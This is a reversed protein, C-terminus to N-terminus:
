KFGRYPCVSFALCRGAIKSDFSAARPESGMDGVLAGAGSERSGTGRDCDARKHAIEDTKQPVPAEGNSWLKDWPAESLRPIRHLHRPVGTAQTMPPGPRGCLMNRRGEMLVSRRPHSARARIYAHRQRCLGYRHTAVRECLIPTPTWVPETFQQQVGQPGPQTSPIPSGRSDATTRVGRGGRGQNGSADPECAGPDLAAPDM